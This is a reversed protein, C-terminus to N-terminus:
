YTSGLESRRLLREIYDLEIVPRSRDGARRRLEDLNGSIKAFHGPRSKLTARITLATARCRGASRTESAATARRRDTAGVEDDSPEGWGNGCQKQM